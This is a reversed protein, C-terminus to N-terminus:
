KKATFSSAILGSPISVISLGLLVLVGTFVKGGPTVPYVDGYGVTTLTATSWWLCHAVTGFKDPQAEREFYYIGVSSLYIVILSLGFFILLESRINMFTMRLRDMARSYRVLKFLRLIRVLRLIRIFKLDVSGLSVIFPLVALIDIIGAASTVYRFRGKAMYFRASFEFLFILTVVLESYYFFSGPKIDMPEISFVVLSYVIVMQFFFDV